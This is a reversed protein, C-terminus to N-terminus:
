DYVSIHLAGVPTLRFPPAPPNVLTHPTEGSNCAITPCGVMALVSTKRGKVNKKKSQM